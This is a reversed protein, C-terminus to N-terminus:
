TWYRKVIKSVYVTYNPEANFGLPWIYAFSVPGIKQLVLIHRSASPSNWGKCNQLRGKCFHHVLVCRSSFRICHGWELPTFYVFKQQWTDWGTEKHDHHVLEVWLSWVLSKCLLKEWIPLRRSLTWVKNPLREGVPRQICLWPFFILWEKSRGQRQHQSGATYVM